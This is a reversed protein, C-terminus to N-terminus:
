PVSCEEVGIIWQEDPRNRGHRERAERLDRAHHIYMGDLGLLPQCWCEPHARHEPEAGGVPMVHLSPIM